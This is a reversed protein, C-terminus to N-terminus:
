KSEEKEEEEDDGDSNWTLGSDSSQSSSEKQIDTGTQDEPEVAKADKCAAKETSKAEPKDLQDASSTESFFSHISASSADSEKDVEEKIPASSLM